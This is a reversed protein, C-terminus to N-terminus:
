SENSQCNVEDQLLRLARAVVEGDKIRLKVTLIRLLVSTEFDIWTQDLRYLSRHAEENKLRAAEMRVRKRLREASCERGALIEARAWDIAERPDAAPLAAEYHSRNLEPAPDFKVVALCHGADARLESLLVEDGERITDLESGYYTERQKQAADPSPYQAHTGFVKLIQASTRMWTKSRGLKASWEDLFQEIGEGAGARVGRGGPLKKRLTMLRVIAMTEVVWAWERHQRALEITEELERENMKDIKNRLYELAQAAQEADNITNRIMQRRADYLEKKSFKKAM